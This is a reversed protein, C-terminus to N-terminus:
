ASATATHPPRLLLPECCKPRFRANGHSHAECSSRRGRTSPSRRGASAVAASRSGSSFRRVLQHRRISNPSVFGATKRMRLSGSRTSAEGAASAPRSTSSERTCQNAVAPCRRTVSCRATSRMWAPPTPVMWESRAVGTSCRSGCSPSAISSATNPRSEGVSRDHSRGTRDGQAREGVVHVREALGLPSEQDFPKVADRRRRGDCVLCSLLCWESSPRGYRGVSDRPQPPPLRGSRPPLVRRGIRSAPLGVLALM